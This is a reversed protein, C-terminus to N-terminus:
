RFLGNEDYLEEDMRHRFGPDPENRSWIGELVAMVRQEKTSLHEQERLDALRADVADAVVATQSKGTLQALLRVKDHVEPNKINLSM